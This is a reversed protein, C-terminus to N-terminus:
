KTQIFPLMSCLSLASSFDPSPTQLEDGTLGHCMCYTTLTNSYKLTLHGEKQITWTLLLVMRQDPTTLLSVTKSKRIHNPYLHGYTGSKIQCKYTTINYKHLYTILRHRITTSSLDHDNVFSICLKEEEANASLISFADRKYFPTM